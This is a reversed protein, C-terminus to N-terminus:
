ATSTSCLALNTDRKLLRHHVFLLNLKLQLHHPSALALLPMVTDKVGGDRRLRGVADTMKECRNHRIPYM